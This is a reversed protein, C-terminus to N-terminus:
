SENQKKGDRIEALILLLIDVQSLMRGLHVDLMQIIKFALGSGKLLIFFLIGLSISESIIDKIEFGNM